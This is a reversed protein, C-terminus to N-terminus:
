AQDKLQASLSLMNADKFRPGIIQMGLDMDKCTVMGPLTIAPHGTINAIPTWPFSDYIENVTGATFPDIAKRITPLMLFNANELAQFIKHQLKKEHIRISGGGLEEGNVVIDYARSKLSLLAEMDKPDFDTRDPATFPHHSSTIGSETM